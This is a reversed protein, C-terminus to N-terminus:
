PFTKRHVGVTQFGTGTTGPIAGSVPHTLISQM